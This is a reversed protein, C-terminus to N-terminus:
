GDGKQTNLEQVAKVCPLEAVACLLESHSPRQRSLRLVFMASVPSEVDVEYVRGGQRELVNRVDGVHEEGELEVVLTVNRTLRRLVTELPVMANLVLAILLLVTIVCEVFGAGAALSMCVTAFLGAATTLGRVQQHSIKIIMGAGLFGIGTIAQSALRSGDFRLGVADATGSWATTLMEYEYLSILISLAAGLSILIYTRLGAECNRRARGYGIAGGCLLALVLRLLVSGFSFQRLPDFLSLM